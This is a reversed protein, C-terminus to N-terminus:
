LLLLVSRKQCTTRHTKECIRYDCGCVLQIADRSDGLNRMNRRTNLYERLEKRPLWQSERKRYKPREKWMKGKELHVLRVFLICHKLNHFIKIIM